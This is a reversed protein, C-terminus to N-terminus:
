KLFKVGTWFTNPSKHALEALREFMGVVDIGKTALVEGIKQAAALLRQRRAEREQETM